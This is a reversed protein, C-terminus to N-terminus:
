TRKEFIKFLEMKLILIITKHCIKQLWTWIKVSDPGTLLRTERFTKLKKKPKNEFSTFLTVHYMVKVLVVPFLTITTESIAGFAFCVIFFLIDILNRTAPVKQQLPMPKLLHNNSYWLWCNTNCSLLLYWSSPSGRIQMFTYFHQHNRKAPVKKFLLASHIRLSNQKMGREFTLM